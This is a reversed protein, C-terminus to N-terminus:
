KVHKKFAKIADAKSAIGMVVFDKGSSKEIITTTRGFRKNGKFYTKKLEYKAYDSKLVM